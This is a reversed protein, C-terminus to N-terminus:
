DQLEKSAAQIQELAALLATESEPYAELAVQLNRNIYRQAKLRRRTELFSRGIIVLAAGNLVLGLGSAWLWKGLYIDLASDLMCVANAIAFMFTINRWVRYKEEWEEGEKIMTELQEIADM